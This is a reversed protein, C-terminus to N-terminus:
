ITSRRQPSCGRRAEDIDSVTDSFDFSFMLGRDIHLAQRQTKGEM